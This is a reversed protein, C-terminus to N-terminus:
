TVKACAPITSGTYGWNVAQLEFERLAAELEQRAKPNDVARGSM